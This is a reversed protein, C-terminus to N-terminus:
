AIAGLMWHTEEFPFLPLCQGWHVNTCIYGHEGIGTPCSQSDSSGSPKGAILQWPQVGEGM